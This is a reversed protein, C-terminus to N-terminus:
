LMVRVRGALVVGQNLAVVRVVSEVELVWHLGSAVCVVAKFLVSLFISHSM